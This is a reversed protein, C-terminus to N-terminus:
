TQMIEWYAQSLHMEAELDRSEDECLCGNSPSSPANIMLINVSVNLNYVIHTAQSNEVNCM